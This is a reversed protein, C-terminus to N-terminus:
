GSALALLLHETSLYDDTLEARAHDALELVETLAKSIHTQGGYARPLKAIADELRNRLAVIDAGVRQIIALVVSEPQGLLAVLLHDPTVEPNARSRALETAASFAEQTKLTWRNPDLAM